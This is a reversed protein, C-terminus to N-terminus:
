PYIFIMLFSAFTPLARCSKQLPFLTSLLENFFEIQRLLVELLRFFSNKCANKLM